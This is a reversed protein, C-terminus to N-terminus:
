LKSAFNTMVTLIKFKTEDPGELVASEIIEYVLIGGINLWDQAVAASKYFVIRKMGDTTNQDTLYGLVKDVLQALKFGEIDRRTCCYLEFVAESLAGRYFSGWSLVIWKQVRDSHQGQIKPTALSKDFTIPIGEITTLNDIFYKKISDQYNAQRATADLAM